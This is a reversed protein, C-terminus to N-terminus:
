FSKSFCKLLFILLLLGVHRKSLKMDDNDFSYILFLPFAYKYTNFTLFCILMFSNVWTFLKARISDAQM